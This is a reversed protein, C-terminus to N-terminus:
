VDNRRELWKNIEALAHGHIMYIMSREYHMKEIIDQFDAGDIYRMTLLQKQREDTLSSIASLIERLANVCERKREYLTELEDAAAAIDEAMPDHVAPSSLVTIEKLRVSINFAREMRKEITHQIADVQGMLYRYRMLFRKAPNNKM